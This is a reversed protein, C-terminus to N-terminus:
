INQLIQHIQIDKLACIINTIQNPQNQEPLFYEINLETWFLYESM